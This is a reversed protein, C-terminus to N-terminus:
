TSRSRGRNQKTLQEGIMQALSSRRKKQPASDEEQQSDQIGFPRSGSHMSSSSELSNLTNNISKVEGSLKHGPAQRQLRRNLLAREANEDSFFRDRNKAVVGPRSKIVRPRPVWSGILHKIDTIAFVEIEIRLRKFDFSSTIIPELSVQSKTSDAKHPSSRTAESHSEVVLNYKIRLDDAVEHEEPCGPSLFYTSVLGCSMLYYISVLRNLTWSRVFSALTFPDQLIPLSMVEFESDETLIPQIRSYVQELLIRNKSDYKDEFFVSVVKQWESDSKESLPKSEITKEYEEASKKLIEDLSTKELSVVGFPGTKRVARILLEIALQAEKCVRTEEDVKM